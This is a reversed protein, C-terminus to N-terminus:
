LGAPRRSGPVEDKPQHREHRSGTRSRIPSAPSRARYDPHGPRTGGARPGQPQGTCGFQSQRQKRGAASLAGAAGSCLKRDTPQGGAWRGVPGGLPPRSLQSALGQTRQNFDLAAAATCTTLKDVKTALEEDKLVSPDAQVLLSRFYQDSNYRGLVRAGDRTSVMLASGPPLPMAEGSDLEYQGPVGDIALAIFLSRPVLAEHVSNHLATIDSTCVRLGVPLQRTGLQGRFLPPDGAADAVGIRSVAYDGSLFKAARAFDQRSAEQDATTM